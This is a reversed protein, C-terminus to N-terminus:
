CAMGDCQDIEVRIPPKGYRRANELLNSLLRELALADAHLEPKPMVILHVDLGSRGFRAVVSDALEALAVPELRASEEARAFDIFQRVIRSLEDIDALM